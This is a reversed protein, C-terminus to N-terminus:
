QGARANLQGHVGASLRATKDRDTYDLSGARVWGSPDTVVVPQTSVVDHTKTNMKLSEGRMVLDQTSAMVDPHTEIDDLGSDDQGLRIVQAGGQLWWLSAREDALGMRARAEVRQGKNDQTRLHIHDIELTDTDPFHRMVSGTVVSMLAGNPGFRRVSFDHMDYDPTHTLPREAAAEEASPAHRLLWWTGLALLAMLLLPGYLPLVGFVFHRVRGGWSM